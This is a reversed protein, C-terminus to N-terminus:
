HKLPPKQLYDRRHQMLSRTKGARIFELFIEPEFEGTDCLIVVDPLLATLEKLQAESM